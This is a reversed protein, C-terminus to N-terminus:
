PYNISGLLVSGSAGTVSPLNAPIGNVRREALWAFACAEVDDPSIGYDQTTTVELGSVQELRRVIAQNHAGGGCVVIRDVPPMWKEIGLWISEATFACLTSQVIAPDPEPRMAELHKYLWDLDFHRTDLSKPPAELFFHDRMFNALLSQDPSASQAWAGDEDFQLNRCTQIWKDSLSNGPGTDFGIVPGDTTVPLFTANAIGGINVVAVAADDGGFVFQHFAPALPAGQGGHRMDESRFDDVVPIGTLQALMKGDGAQWSFPNSSSPQHLITQGHCGIAKVQNKSYGEIVELVAQSYQAALETDVQRAIDRERRPDNMLDLLLSRLSDPFPRFASRIVKVRFESEFSALVADVGDMSTGSM